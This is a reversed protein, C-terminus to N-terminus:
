GSSRRRTPLHQEIDNVFLALIDGREVGSNRHGLDRRMAKVIDEFIFIADLPKGNGAGSQITQRRFKVWALLVDDSGWVMIRQTFDMLFQIVEAEPVPKGLTNGLLVRMMFEMLEEYVPVKKERNQEQIKARTEFLRGVAISLVSVLVSAAAAVIAVALDSELNRIVRWSARVLVFVGYGSAALLVLGLFFSTVARFTRMRALEINVDFHRRIQRIVRVGLRGFGFFVLLNLKRREAPALIQWGFVDDRERWERLAQLVNGWGV